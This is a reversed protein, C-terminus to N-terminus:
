KKIDEQLYQETTVPTSCIHMMNWTILTGMKMVRIYSRERNDSSTAEEIVEPTWPGGDEYQMDIIFGIPFFNTKTLIM